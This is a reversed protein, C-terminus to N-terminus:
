RQNSDSPHNANKSHVYVCSYKCPDECDEVRNLYTRTALRQLLTYYCAKEVEVGKRMVETVYEIIEEGRM